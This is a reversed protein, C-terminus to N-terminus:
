GIRTKRSAAICNSVVCNRGTQKAKYLQKDARGYLGAVSSDEVAREMHVGVSITVVSGRGEAQVLQLREVGARVEEAMQLIATSDYGHVFILFEEGGIRAVVAEEGLTAAMTQAVRKICVDGQVHGYRDNYKKFFDIDVMMAAVMERHRVCNEWVPTLIRDLGRRNILGTLPDREAEQSEKKLKQESLVMKRHNGFNERSRFFAFAHVLAIVLFRDAPLALFGDATLSVFLLLGAVEAGFIALYCLLDSYVLYAGLLVAAYYCLMEQGARNEIGAFICLYAILYLLYGYSILSYYRVARQGLAQRMFYAFAASSITFFTGQMLFLQTREPQCVSFLLLLLPTVTACLLACVFCRQLNQMAAAAAYRKGRGTSERGTGMSEVGM